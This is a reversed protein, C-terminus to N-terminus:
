VNNRLREIIHDRLRNIELAAPSNPAYENIGMAHLFADQNSVRDGISVPAIKGVRSYQDIYSRTRSTDERRVRNLVVTWQVGAAKAIRIFTNTAQLDPLSPQAPVLVLDALELVRKLGADDRGGLDIIALDAGKNRARTIMPALNSLTSKCGLVRGPRRRDVWAQATDQGFDADILYVNLALDAFAAALSTSLLSKGTGGKTNGIILTTFKPLPSLESNM